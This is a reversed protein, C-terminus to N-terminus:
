SPLQRGNASRQSPLVQAISAVGSGPLSAMLESDPTAQGDVVRQRATPERCDPAVETGSTSRRSPVLQARWDNETGLSTMEAINDAIEQEEAEAQVATPEAVCSLPTVTASTARQFPDIQVIWCVAVSKEGMLGGTPKLLMEQGPAVAQKARPPPVFALRVPTGTTSRHFPVRHLVCAKGVRSFMLAPVGSLIAQEDGDAHVATLKALLVPAPKTDTTSRQFPFFHLICDWALGGPDECVCSMPVEQGARETHRAVPM